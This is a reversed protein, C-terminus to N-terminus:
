ILNARYESRIERFGEAESDAEEKWKTVQREIKIQIRNIEEQSVQQLIEGSDHAYIDTIIEPDENNEAYHEIMSKITEELSGGEFCGHKTEITWDLM